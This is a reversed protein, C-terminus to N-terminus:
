VINIRPMDAAQMTSTSDSLNACTLPEKKMHLLLFSSHTEMLHTCLDDVDEENVMTM